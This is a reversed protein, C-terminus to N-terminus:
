DSKDQMSVKKTTSHIDGLSIHVYDISKETITNILQETIEMSIGPSEAEEPSLRYGVIFDDSAYESKAKLVEDIVATPFKM